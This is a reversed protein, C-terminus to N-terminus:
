ANTHVDSKNKLYRTSIDVMGLHLCKSPSPQHIFLSATRYFKISQSSWVCSSWWNLNSHGNWMPFSTILSVAIKSQAVSSESEQLTTEKKIGFGSWDSKMVNKRWVDVVSHQCCVELNKKSVDPLLCTAVVLASAVILFLLKGAFLDEM